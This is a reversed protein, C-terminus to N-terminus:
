TQFIVPQHFHKFLYFSEPMFLEAPHKWGPGKRPRINLSWAVADPGARSFGSPDTGKPLCQGLLGNIGENIGCQWPSHPDAFYVCVGNIDFTRAHQAVSRGQVYTM